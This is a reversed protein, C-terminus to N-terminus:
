GVENAQKARDGALDHGAEQMGQKLKEAKAKKHARRFKDCKSCTDNKLLSWDLAGEGGADLCGYIKRLAADNVDPLSDLKWDHNDKLYKVEDAIYGEITLKVTKALESEPMGPNAKRVHMEVTVAHSHYHPAVAESADDLFKKVAVTEYGIETLERLSHIMAVSNVALIKAQLSLKTANVDVNM